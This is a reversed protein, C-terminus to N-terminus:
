RAAHNPSQPKGHTGRVEDAPVTEEDKQAEIKEQEVNRPSRGEGPRPQRVVGGARILWRGPERRKDIGPTGDPINMASLTFVSDPLSAAGNVRLNRVTLDIEQVPKSDTGFYSTKVQRIPYWVSSLNQWQCKKEVIVLWKGDRVQGSRLQTPLWDAVEDCTVELRFNNDARLFRLLVKGDAEESEIASCKGALERLQSADQCFPEAYHLLPDLYRLQAHGGHQWESVSRPPNEVTLFLGWTRDQATFAFMETSRVVSQM